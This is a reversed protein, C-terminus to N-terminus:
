VRGGNKEYAVLDRALNWADPSGLGTALDYGPGAPYLLNGGVTVDHFPPYAPKGAALAYLMPQLFALAKGTERKQYQDLLTGIGAWIPAAQSTGNGMGWAGLSYIAVGSVDDADASVDPYARKHSPNFRSDVGPGKQWAPQDFYTAVGGGGGFFTDPHEWGVETYWSSDQRVSLRTGGVSIAGPADSPLVGAVLSQDPPQGWHGLDRMCDYGGMDGSAIFQLEGLQVAKDFSGAMAQAAAAGFVKDCHGWSHSFIAGPYKTVAADIAQLISSPSRMDANWMVIRAAPAIMHVVELDMENEYGQDKAPNIHPGGDDIVQIPPLSYKQTFVDLDAQKFGDLGWVVITEGQGDIGADRLPKYDYAMALDAPSLGGPPVAQRADKELYSSIRGALTVKDRLAEPVTPDQRAAYFDRGDPTTFRHVDVQFAEDVAAAPGEAVLWANGATWTGRIKHQALWGDVADVTARTPGYRQAYDAASLTRGAGAALAQLDRQRQALSADALTLVLQVDTSPGISGGDTSHALIAAFYADTGSAARHAM